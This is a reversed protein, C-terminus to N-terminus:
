AAGYRRMWQERIARNQAMTLIGAIVTPDLVEGMLEKVADLWGPDGIARTVFPNNIYKIAWNPLDSEEKELAKVEAQSLTREGYAIVGMLKKTKEDFKALEELSVEPHLLVTRLNMQNDAEDSDKSLVHDAIGQANKAVGIDEWMSEPINTLEDPVDTQDLFEQAAEVGREDLIGKARGTDILAQKQKPFLRDSFQEVIKMVNGYSGPGSPTERARQVAAEGKGLVFEEGTPIMSRGVQQAGAPLAAGAGGAKFRRLFETLRDQQPLQGLRLEGPDRQTTGQIMQRLQNINAQGAPVGGPQGAPGPKRWTQPGLQPAGGGGPFGGMGGPPGGPMGGPPGGRPGGPPGGPPGGSMQQLKLNLLKHSGGAIRKRLKQEEQTRYPEALDPYVRLFREIDAVDKPDALEYAEELPTKQKAFRGKGLQRAWDGLGQMGQGQIMQRNPFRNVASAINPM